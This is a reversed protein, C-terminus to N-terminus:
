GLLRKAKLSFSITFTRQNEKAKAPFPLGIHNVRDLANQVSRDVAANGSGRVIRASAVKGDRNIVITVTADADDSSVDDPVIWADTYRKRVIDAYPAYSFGGGGPGEPLDVRTSPSLNSAISKGANSFEKALAQQSPSRSNAKTSSGTKSERAKRPDVKTSSTQVEHRTPKSTKKEPLADKDIFDTKRNEPEPPAPPAPRNEPKPVATPTPQRVPEPPPPQPRSEPAPAPPRPTGGGTFEESAMMPEFTLVPVDHLKSRNFFAPGVLLALLLLAHMGSAGFLCKKQLQSM